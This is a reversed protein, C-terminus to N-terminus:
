PGICEFEFVLIFIVHLSKWWPLAHNYPACRQPVSTLVGGLTPMDLLLQKMAVSDLLLQIALGSFVGLKSSLAKVLGQCTM